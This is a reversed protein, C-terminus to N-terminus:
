HVWGGVRSRLLFRENREAATKGTRAVGPKLSESTLKWPMLAADGEEQPDPALCLLVPELVGEADLAAKGAKIQKTAWEAFNIASLPGCPTILAPLANFKM